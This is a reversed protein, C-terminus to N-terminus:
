SNKSIDLKSLNVERGILAITLKTIAKEDLNTNSLGLAKLSKTLRVYKLVSEINYIKSGNLDLSTM